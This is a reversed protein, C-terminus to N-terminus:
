KLLKLTTSSQSSPRMMIGNFKNSIVMFGIRITEKKVERSHLDRGAKGKRDDVIKFIQIYGRHDYKDGTRKIIM